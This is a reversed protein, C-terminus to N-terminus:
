NEGEPQLKEYREIYARIGDATVPGRQLAVIEGGPNILYTTPLASIQGLLQDRRPRDTAVLIPFSLFQEAVFAELEDRGIAEMNVGLVVAQGEAGNHFVELEPLEKRCPPCWTAWYNVLVWRGRYDSLSYLEGDIGPLTFDEAATAALAAGFFATCVFSFVLRVQVHAAAFGSM